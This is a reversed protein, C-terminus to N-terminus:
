SGLGDGLSVVWRRDLHKWDLFLSAPRNFSALTNCSELTIYLLGCHAGIYM